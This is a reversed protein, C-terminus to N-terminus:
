VLELLLLEVQIQERFKSLEEESLTRLRRCCRVPTTAEEMERSWRTSRRWCSESRLHIRTGTTSSTIDEVVSVSFGHLDSNGRIFDEVSVGDAELDDGHTILVMTYRAADEGFAEQILEVTKQEEETFRGAYIVVLFVHPGPASYSICRTIERVVEKKTKQTDFLGPTDVVALTQGEFEATEKQCVSTLSSSSPRSDFARRRLITNGAANKGVGIKGVLVM